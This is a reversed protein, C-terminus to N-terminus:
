DMLGIKRYYGAAVDDRSIDRLLRKGTLWQTSDSCLGHLNTVSSGIGSSGSTCLPVITKGTFDYSELFTCIIRPAQGWWIPYGLFIVDYKDMNGVTGSIEPRSSPANKEISARSSNDRYNLDESTYPIEPQIEYISANLADAVFEAVVRTNGTASFYAVLINNEEGYVVTGRMTTMIFAFLITIVQKKITTM